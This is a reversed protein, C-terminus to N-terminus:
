RELGEEQGVRAVKAGQPPLHVGQRTARGRLRLAELGKVGTVLGGEGSPWPLQLVEPGHVLGKAVEHRALPVVDHVDVRRHRGEDRAHREPLQLASLAGPDDVGGVSKVEEPSPMSQLVQEVERQFLPGGMPRIVQDDDVLLIVVGGEGMGQDWGVPQREEGADAEVQREPISRGDVCGAFAVYPLFQAEGGRVLEEEHHRLEVGALAVPVGQLGEGDRPSLVQVQRERAAAGQLIRHPLARCRKPEQGLDVEQPLPVVDGGQHQGGQRRHQGGLALAQVAADHLGDSQADGDQARVCPAYPVEDCVGRAPGEKGDALGRGQRRVHQHHGGIRWHLAGDRVRAPVDPLEQPGMLTDIGEKQFFPPYGFLSVPRLPGALGRVM